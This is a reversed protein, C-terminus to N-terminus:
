LQGGRQIRRHSTRVRWLVWNEASWGERALLLVTGDALNGVVLFDVEVITAICADDEVDQLVLVLGCIFFRQLVM